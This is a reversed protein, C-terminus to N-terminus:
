YIVLIYDEGPAKGSPLALILHEIEKLSVPSWPTADCLKLNIPSNDPTPHCAFLRTYHNEWEEKSM